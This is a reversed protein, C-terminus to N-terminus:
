DFASGKGVEDVPPKSTDKIEVFFFNKYRNAMVYRLIHIAKQEDCETIENLREIASKESRTRMVEGHQESLYEKWRIWMDALEPSQFPSKVDIPDVPSIFNDFEAMLKKFRNFKSIFAKIKALNATSLGGSELFSSLENDSDVLQKTVQKWKEIM